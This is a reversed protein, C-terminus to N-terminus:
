RKGLKQLIKRFPRKERSGGESEETYKFCLLLFLGVLYLGSGERGKEFDKLM